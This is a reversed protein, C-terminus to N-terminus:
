ELMQVFMLSNLMNLRIFDDDIDIDILEFVKSLRYQFTRKHVFMKKACRMHSKDNLLYLFLTEVLSTNNAQDHQYL